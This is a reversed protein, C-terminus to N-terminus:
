SLGDSATSEIYDNSLGSHVAKSKSKDLFSILVIYVFLIAHDRRKTIYPINSILMRRM